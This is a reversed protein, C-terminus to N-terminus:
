ARLEHLHHQSELRRGPSGCSCLRARMRASREYGHVGTVNSFSTALVAIAMEEEGLRGVFAVAILGLMFMSFQSVAM